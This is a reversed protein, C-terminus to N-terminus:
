NVSSITYFCRSHDDSYPHYQFTYALKKLISDLNATIVITTTQNEAIKFSRNTITVTPSYNLARDVGIYRYGDLVVMDGPAVIMELGIYDGPPLPYQGMVLLSDYAEEALTNYVDPNLNDRSISKTDGFINARAGDARIAQLSTLYVPFNNLQFNTEFTYAAHLKVLASGPAPSRYEEDKCGIFISLAFTLFSLLIICDNKPLKCCM